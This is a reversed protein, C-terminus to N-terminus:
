HEWVWVMLLRSFSGVMREIMRTTKARTRVLLWTIKEVTDHRSHGLLLVLCAKRIM